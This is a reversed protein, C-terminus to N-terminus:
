EPAPVGSQEAVVAAASVDLNWLRPPNDRWHQLGIHVPPQLSLAANIGPVGCRGVCGDSTNVVACLLGLQERSHLTNLIRTFWM